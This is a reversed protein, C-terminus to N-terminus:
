SMKASTIVAISMFSKARIFTVELEQNAVIHTKFSLIKM